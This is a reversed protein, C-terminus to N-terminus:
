KPSALIAAWIPRAQWDQPIEMESQLSIELTELHRALRSPWTSDPEIVQVLDVLLVLTNYIRRENHNGIASKTIQFNPPLHPPKKRPLQFTFTFRRNWLRSHHAATNRLISLHHFLSCFTGEDHGYSDAISQRLAPPTLGALLRSIAGFSAVETLVWIPPWPMALSKRHHKIFDERSRSIEADLKTLTKAHDLPDSFHRNELYALPGLQHGIEYALRSRVSIEVRKCAELVLHRLTRDFQYLEWLQTFTAGSCFQDRNGPVTFPFRYASLRYYNHHALVHLAEAEDPVILGRSKLLDLQEQYTRAPKSM